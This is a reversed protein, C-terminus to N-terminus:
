ISWVVDPFLVALTELDLRLDEFRKEGELDPESIGAFIVTGVFDFGAATCCYPLGKKTGEEDCIAVVGRALPVVKIHGGVIQQLNELASSIEVSRASWGAAKVVVKIRAM